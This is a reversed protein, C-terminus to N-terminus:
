GLVFRLKRRVARRLENFHPPPEILYEGLETEWRRQWESERADLREAFRDPDLGRHRAKREFAPWLAQADIERGVLLESLDYFDRCQLRQM